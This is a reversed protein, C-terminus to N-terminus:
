ERCLWGLLSLCPQLCCGAQQRRWLAQGEFGGGWSRVPLGEQPCVSLRGVGQAILARLVAPSVGGPTHGREFEGTSIRRHVCVMASAVWSVSATSAPFQLRELAQGSLPTSPCVSMATAMPSIPTRGCGRHLRETHTGKPIAQARPTGTRQPHKTPQTPAYSITRPIPIRRCSQAM